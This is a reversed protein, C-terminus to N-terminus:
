QKSQDSWYDPAAPCAPESVFAPVSHFMSVPKSVPLRLSPGDTETRYDLRTRVRDLTVARHHPTLATSLHMVSNPVMKEALLRALAAAIQVTNVIVLRPGPLEGIWKTLQDLTM